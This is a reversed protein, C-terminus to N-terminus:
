IQFVLEKPFEFVDMIMYDEDVNFYHILCYIASDLEKYTKLLTEDIEEIKTKFEEITTEVKIRFSLCVTIAKKRYQFYKSQINRM